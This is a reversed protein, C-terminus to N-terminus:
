RGTIAPLTSKKLFLIALCTAEIGMTEGGGTKFAGTKQQQSLIQVAGEYYWDRGCLRAIGALECARELSYLWYYWHKDAKGVFGPNARPTFEAGLWAFASEIAADMDRLRQRPARENRLMGARAVVMGALSAATLSGYPPEDPAQYSFGRPAARLTRSAPEAGAALMLERHTLLSLAVPSGRAPCQVSLFHDAAANWTADSIPLGCLAAADLGLLGYQSVSNDFRKGGDYDFRLTKDPDVRTDRNDLLRDLWKQALERERPPLDRAARLVVAGSRVMEAERAPAYRQSLAMLATALSYTDVIKRRQLATMAAALVPDDPAVEAHLLTLVALALRGSGFTYDDDATDRLWTASVGKLSEHVWQSGSRVAAAVRARFDADQNDRVAILEWHDQLVIHRFRKKDEQVVLSAQAEFSRVLGHEVDVVRRIAITGNVDFAFMQTLAYPGSRPDSPLPTAPRRDITLEFDQIGDDGRPGIRGRVIVDGFPVLRPFQWTGSSQVSLDLAIRRLVDRLDRVPTVPARRDADLEGDCLWPAPWLDPLYKEPVAETPVLKHAAAASEAVGSHSKCNRRYEVSGLPPLQWALSQASGPLSLLLAVLLLTARLTPALCRPSKM